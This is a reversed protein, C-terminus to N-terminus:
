REVGYIHECIEHRSMGSGNFHSVFNGAEQVMVIGSIGQIWELRRGSETVVMGRM